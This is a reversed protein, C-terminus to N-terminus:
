QTIKALVEQYSALMAEASAIEAKTEAVRRENEEAEKGLNSIHRVLTDARQGIEETASKGAYYTM